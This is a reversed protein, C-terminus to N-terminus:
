LLTADGSEKWARSGSLSSFRSATSSVWVLATVSQQLHLFIAPRRPVFLLQDVLLKVCHGSNM